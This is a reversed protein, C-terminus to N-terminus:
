TLETGSHFSTSTGSGNRYRFLSVLGTGSHEPVPSLHNFAPISIGAANDKIGIGM